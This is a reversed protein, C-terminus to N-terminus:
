VLFFGQTSRHFRLTRRNSRCCLIASDKRRGVLRFERSWRRREAGRWEVFRIWESELDGRPYIADAQGRNEPRGIPRRSNGHPAGTMKEPSGTERQAM